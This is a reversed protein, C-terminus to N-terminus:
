TICGALTNGHTTGGSRTGLELYNNQNQWLIFARSGLDEGLNVGSIGNSNGITVRNGSLPNAFSDGVVLLQNPSNTGIGVGGSARILFQDDGTSAFDADTSDAWVFSGNHNAQARRGAAFSYDGAATNLEGGPVTSFQGSANNASGGSITADFGSANNNQGGGVTAGVDSAVNNRGGGVASGVFGSFRGTATNEMGGAVTSHNGNTTNNEGGGITAFRSANIAKNGSGGGITSATGVATNEMGGGITAHDGNATNNQGGGITAHNDLTSNNEGGSVTSFDGTVTSTTGDDHRGQPLDDASVAGVAILLAVLVLSTIVPSTRTKM